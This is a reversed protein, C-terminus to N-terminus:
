LAKARGLAAPFLAEALVPGFPGDSEEQVEFVVAVEM